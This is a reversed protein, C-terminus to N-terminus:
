ITYAGRSSVTRTCRRTPAHFPRSLAAGLYKPECGARERQCRGRAVNLTYICGILNPRCAGTMSTPDTWVKVIGTDASAVYAKHRAKDYAINEAAIDTDWAGTQYDSRALSLLCSSPRVHCVHAACFRQPPVSYFDLPRNSRRTASGNSSTSAEIASAALAILRRLAASIARHARKQALGARLAASSTPRQCANRRQCLRPAEFSTTTQRLGRPLLATPRASRCPARAGRSRLVHASFCASLRVASSM